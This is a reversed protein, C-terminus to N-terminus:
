RSGNLPELAVVRPLVVRAVLSLAREEALAETGPHDVVLAVEVVRDRIHEGVRHLGAEDFTRLIPRPAPAPGVFLGRGFV